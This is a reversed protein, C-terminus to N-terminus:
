AQTVVAYRSVSVAAIGIKARVRESPTEIGPQGDLDEPPFAVLPVGRASAFALLGPEDMKLAVTAVIAVSNAALGEQRLVGDTWATITEEPTGRRCGIGAVLTPPRYVVTIKGPLDAPEIRDSIVLLASARLAPLEDWARLRM